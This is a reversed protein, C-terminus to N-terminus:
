DQCAGPLVAIRRPNASNLGIIENTNTNRKLYVCEHVFTNSRIITNSKYACVSMSLYVNDEICVDGIISCRRQIVSNQGVRSDHGIISHSWINVFNDIIVNPEVVVFEAIYCGKGIRASPSIKARKDIITVCRLQHQDILNLMHQRKQKNRQTVADTMPMWNVACFFDFNNAYYDACSTDQFASESDIVPIGYLMKTNGHYDNDIIGHILMGNEQCTEIYIQMASNTGLFIVPRDSM